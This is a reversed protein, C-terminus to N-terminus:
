FGGKFINKILDAGEYLKGKFVIVLGVILVLFIVAAAILIVQWSIEAKKLM